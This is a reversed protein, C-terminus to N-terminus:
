EAHARFGLAASLQQASERVAVIAADFERSNVYRFLGLVGIAYRVRGERDHVPACVARLGIKYEGNEIACGDQRIQRLQELVAEQTTLTHPTFAQMGAARLLACANADSLTSLYLKGQATAHLPLRSGVESLVQVGSRGAYQEINLIHGGGLWTVVASAGTQAALRELFPRAAASIDWESAVAQGCEYLRIGLFYRGDPRQEVYSCSRLTSLLLHTTSKPYGTTQALEALSMPRRQNALLDLLRLAKELSRNTKPSDNQM